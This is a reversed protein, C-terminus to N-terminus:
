GRRRRRRVFSIGIFGASVAIVAVSAGSLRPASTGCSCGGGGGETGGPGNAGNPSNPDADSGLLGGDGNPSIAPDVVEFSTLMSIDGQQEFWTKQEEVMDVQITRRGATTYAPISFSLPIEEGARITKPLEIRGDYKPAIRESPSGDVVSVGARIPNAGDNKWTEWGDNHVTFSLTIPEGLNVKQPVSVNKYSARYANRGGAQKRALYFFSFPDVARIKRAAYGNVLQSTADNISKTLDSLAVIRYPLFTAAGPNNTAGLVANVIDIPAIKGFGVDTAGEVPRLAIVPTNGAMGTDSGVPLYPGVLIGDSYFPTVADMKDFKLADIPDLIWGASTDLYRADRVGEAAWIKRAENGMASPNAYGPGSDAGIFFDRKTRTAVVHRFHPPIRPAPHGSFDWAFPVLGRGPTDWTQPLVSFYWAASDHDGLLWMTYNAPIVGGAAADGAYFASDDIDYNKTATKFRIEARTSTHGANAVALSTRVETWEKGVTISTTALEETGGLARVVQEVQADGSQSRLFTRLTITRGAGVANGNRYITSAAANAPTATNCQMLKMGSRSKSPDTYVTCNTTQTTWEAGEDEFGGNDALGAIYGNGVLDEATPRIQPEPTTPLPVHEFVTANNMQPSPAYADADLGAAYPSINKVSQWELDVPNGGTQYKYPWPLFGRVSIAKSGALSRAILLLENQVGLDVGAPAGPDDSAVTNALPNFDFPFGRHSVLWDRNTVYWLNLPSAGGNKAHLPDKVWIGDVMMGFETPDTKKTKLYTESAWLYADGKARGSSKHSAGNSLGPVIGGAPSNVFLSSGDANVLSVKPAFGKAILKQYLSDGGKDYRVVILNEAGAATFAANLTSPVNEDWVALGNLESKHAELIADLGKDIEAIIDATPKSPEVSQNVRTLTRGTLVGGGMEEGQLRALWLEDLSKSFVIFLNPGARNVIGQISTLAALRDYALRRGALATAEQGAKPAGYGFNQLSSVDVIQLMEAGATSSLFLMLPTAIKAVLASRRM